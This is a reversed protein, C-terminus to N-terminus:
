RAMRVALRGGLWAMPLYAFALDVIVFLTPAPIITSALIGGAFFVIGVGIAFKMKHNAAIVATLVAGLLAGLAHALFPFIFYKFDLTPMVRILDEMNNPDIGEIPFVTHGLKILQFNTIHGALLGVIVGVINRLIPHM